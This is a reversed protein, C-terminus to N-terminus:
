KGQLEEEGEITEVVKVEINKLQQVVHCGLSFGGRVGEKGSPKGWRRGM